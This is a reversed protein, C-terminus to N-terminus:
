ISSLLLIPRKQKRPFDLPDAQPLLRNETASLTRKLGTPFAIFYFSPTKM